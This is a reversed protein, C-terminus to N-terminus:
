QMRKARGVKFKIDKVVKRGLEKTIKDILRNKLAKMETLWVHNPVVVWLIGSKIGIAICRKAISEGAAQPWIRVAEYEAIGEGARRRLLDEVAEGLRKFKGSRGKRSM